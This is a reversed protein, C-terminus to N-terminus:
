SGGSSRRFGRGGQQEPLGAKRRAEEVIPECAKAAEQFRPDDPNVDGSGFRQTMRGDESFQPDPMDIGHERMCKAFALMAEQMAAQQEETLQPRANELLGECARQAREVKEQNGPRVELRLEGGAGPDEMDVGHERMCEVYELAAEEPDKKANSTGGSSGDTTSQGTTDTLSAVGNSDGGGGCGALALTLAVALAGVTTVLGVKRKV